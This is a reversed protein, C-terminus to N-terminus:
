RESSVINEFHKSVKATAFSHKVAKPLGFGLLATSSRGLCLLKKVRHFRPLCNSLM